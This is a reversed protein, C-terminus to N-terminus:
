LLAKTADASVHFPVLRARRPLALGFQQGIEYGIRQRGPDSVSLLAPHSSGANLWYQPRGGQQL